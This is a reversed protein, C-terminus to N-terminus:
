YSFRFIIPQNQNMQQKKRILQLLNLQRNQLYIELRYRKGPAFAVRPTFLIQTNLPKYTGELPKQLDDTADDAYISFLQSWTVSDARRSEM